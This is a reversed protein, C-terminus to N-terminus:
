VALGLVHSIEGNEITKKLTEIVKMDDTLDIGLNKMKKLNNHISNNEQNREKGM